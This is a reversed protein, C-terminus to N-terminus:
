QVAKEEATLAPTKLKKPTMNVLCISTVILLLGALLSFTLPEHLFISSVVISILPILFTYSAVKSAEGSGVLTFFVLWGLAIVFVSIFLLSLIFPATWQIASWSETFEGSSVLLVGGILLQLTVMWISDVRSGTKKMFVTGLAWSVASGLALLIGTFSIHGGFGAASIVAVGAFGLVLGAIKLAFMSEGLWLWSFIGMLVPQFFVIASFLGAPLYNLGITQLGYFLTINLIASVLYIPWTEKFRLKSFRPLAVILLLLGGILTRIGAFLLPPSYALAAKSLPWNIGWVTVLFALLLATQIKTPQKM